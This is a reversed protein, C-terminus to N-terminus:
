LMYFSCFTGKNAASICYILVNEVLQLKTENKQNRFYKWFLEEDETEEPADFSQNENSSKSFFVTDVLRACFNAETMSFTDMEVLLTFDDTSKM